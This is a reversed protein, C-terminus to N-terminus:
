ALLKAGTRYAVGSTTYGVFKVCTKGKDCPRNFGCGKTLGEVDRSLIAGSNWDIGNAATRAYKYGHIGTIHPRVTSTPALGAMSGFVCTNNTKLNSAGILNIRPM